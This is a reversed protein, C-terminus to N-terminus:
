GVVDVGDPKALRHPAQDATNRDDRSTDAVLPGPRVAVDATDKDISGGVMSIQTM